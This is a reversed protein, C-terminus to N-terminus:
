IGACPMKFRPNNRLATFACCNICHKGNGPINRLALPRFFGKIIGVLAKCLGQVTGLVDEVAKINFFPAIIVQTRHELRNGAIRHRFKGFGAQFSQLFVEMRLITLANETMNFLRKVGTAAFLDVKVQLVAEPFGVAAIAPKM